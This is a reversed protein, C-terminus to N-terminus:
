RGAEMGRPEGSLTSAGFLPAMRQWTRIIYVHNKIMLFLEEALHSAALM